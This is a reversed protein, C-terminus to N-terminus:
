GRRQMARRIIGMDRARVAQLRLSHPRPVFFLAPPAIEAPSFGRGEPQGMWPHHSIRTLAAVERPALRRKLAAPALAINQIVEAESIRHQKALDAMQNHVFPTRVYSPCVAVATINQPAGELALVKTFGIVGHKAAVWASIYESAVQGHISSINIIRGRKQAIMHPM